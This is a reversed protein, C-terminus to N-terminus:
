HAQKKMEEDGRAPYGDIEEQMRVVQALYLGAKEPGLKDRWNKTRKGLFAIGKVGAFAGPIKLM